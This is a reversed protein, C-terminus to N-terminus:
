LWKNLKRPPLLHAGTTSRDELELLGSWSRPFRRSGLWITATAQGPHRKNHASLIKRFTEVERTARPM